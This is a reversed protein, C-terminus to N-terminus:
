LEQKPAKKAIEVLEVDFVLVSNPPIINGFGRSGYAKHPPITLTRKENVCMGQLGEDWGKIVQGAGLRLQFPTGRGISSDFEGGDSFRTGTYHVKITDGANAQQSCDDPKFTTEIELETPAERASVLLLQVIFIPLWLSFRM